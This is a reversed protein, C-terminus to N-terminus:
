EGGERMMVQTITEALKLSQALEETLKGKKKLAEEVASRRTELAQKKELRLQLDRLEDEKMSGTAEKRYRAIFPLTAGEEFLRMAGKVQWQELAMAQAFSRAAQEDQYVSYSSSLAADLEEMGELEEISHEDSGKKSKKVRTSTLPRAAVPAKRKM